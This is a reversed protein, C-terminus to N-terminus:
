CWPKLGTVKTAATVTFRKFGQRYPANAARSTPLWKSILDPLQFEMFGPLDSDLIVKEGRILLITEEIRELSIKVLSKSMSTSPQLCEACVKSTTWRQPQPATKRNICSNQRRGRDLAFIRKTGQLDDSRKVDVQHSRRAVMVASFVWGIRFLLRHQVLVSRRNIPIM